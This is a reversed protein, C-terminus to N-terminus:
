KANEPAPVWETVKAVRRALASASVLLTYWQRLCSRETKQLSFICLLSKVNFFFLFFARIESLLSQCESYLVM